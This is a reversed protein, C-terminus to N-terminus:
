HHPYSYIVQMPSSPAMLMLSPIAECLTGHLVTSVLVQSAKKLLEVDNFNIIPRPMNDFISFLEQNYTVSIKESLDEYFHRVIIKM